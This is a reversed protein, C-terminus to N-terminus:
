QLRQASWDSRAPCGFSAGLGHTVHIAEGGAPPLQRVLKMCSVGTVGAIIGAVLFALPLQNGSVGLIEGSLAFIRAGVTVGVGYFV